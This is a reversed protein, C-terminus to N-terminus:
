RPSGLEYLGLGDARCIFCYLESGQRWIVSVPSVLSLPDPSMRDLFLYYKINGQAGLIWPIVPTKVWFTCFATIWKRMSNGSLGDLVRYKFFVKKLITFGWFMIDRFQHHLTPLKWGGWCLDINLCSFFFLLLWSKVFLVDRPMVPTRKIFKLFM